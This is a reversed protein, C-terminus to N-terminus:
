GIPYGIGMGIGMGMGMGMGLLVLNPCSSWTRRASTLIHEDAAAIAAAGVAQQLQMVLGVRVAGAIPPAGGKEM